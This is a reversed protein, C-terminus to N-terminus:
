LLSKWNPFTQWTRLKKMRQLAPTDFWHNYRCPSFTIMNVVLGIHPCSFLGKELFFDQGVQGLFINNWGKIPLLFALSQCVILSTTQIKTSLPFRRLSLSLLCDATVVIVELKSLDDYWCYWKWCFRRLIQCIIECRVCTNGISFFVLCHTPTFIFWKEMASHKGVQDLFVNTRSPGSQTIMGGLTLTLNDFSGTECHSLNQQIGM